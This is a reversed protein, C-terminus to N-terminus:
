KRRCCYNHNNVYYKKIKLKFKKLFFNRIVFQFNRTFIIRLEYNM